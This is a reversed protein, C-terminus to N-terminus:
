SKKQFRIEINGSPCGGGRKEMLPTGASGRWSGPSGTRGLSPWGGRRMGSLWRSVSGDDELESGSGTTELM